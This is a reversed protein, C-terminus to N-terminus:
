TPWVEAHDDPARTRPRGSRPPQRLLGAAGPELRRVNPDSLAQDYKEQRILDLADNKVARRLFGPLNKLDPPLGTRRLTDFTRSVVDEAGLGFVGGVGHDHLVRRALRELDPRHEGEAKWLAVADAALSDVDAGETDQV